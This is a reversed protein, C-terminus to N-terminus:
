ARLFSLRLGVILRCEPIEPREPGGSDAIRRAVKEDSDNPYVVMIEPLEYTGRAQSQYPDVKDM